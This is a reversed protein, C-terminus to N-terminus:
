GSARGGRNWREEVKREVERDKVLAEIKREVEVNRLRGDERERMRARLVELQVDTEEKIARQLDSTSTLDPHRLLFSQVFSHYPSSSPQM